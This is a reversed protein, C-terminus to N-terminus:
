HVRETREVGGGFHAPPEDADLRTPVRWICYDASARAAVATRERVVLIPVGYRGEIARRLDVPFHLRIDDAAYTYTRPVWGLLVNMLRALRAGCCGGPSPKDPEPAELM